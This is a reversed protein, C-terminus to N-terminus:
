RKGVAYPQQFNQKPTISPVSSQVGPMFNDNGGSNFIARVRGGTAPDNKLTSYGTALDITAQDGQMHNQGQTLKVNGTLVATKKVADYDGRDAQAITTGDKNKQTILVHGRAEAKSLENKDTLWATLQDAQIKDAGQTVVAAGKSVAKHELANYDMGTKSTVVAKPSKLTVTDGRLEAIQTKADYDATASTITNDNSTIVVNGTVTMHTLESPGKAPDYTAEAEDGKITTAGQTIVVNGTARFKNEEKIWELQKDAEIAVPAKSHGGPIPSKNSSQAWACPSLLCLLLVLFRM